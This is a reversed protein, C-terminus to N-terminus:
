RHTTRMPYGPVTPVTTGNGTKNTEAMEMGAGLDSEPHRLRPLWGYVGFRLLTSRAGTRLPIRVKPSGTTRVFIYLLFTKTLYRLIRSNKYLFKKRLPM